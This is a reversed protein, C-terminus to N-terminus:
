LKKKERQKKCHKFIYINHWLSKDLLFDVTSKHVVKYDCFDFLLYFVFWNPDLLEDLVRDDVAQRKTEVRGLHSAAHSM